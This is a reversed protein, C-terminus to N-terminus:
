EEIGEAENGRWPVACIKSHSLGDEMTVSVVVIANGEAREIADDVMPNALRDGQTQCEM